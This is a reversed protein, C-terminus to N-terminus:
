SNLVKASELKTQVDFYSSDDELVFSALVYYMLILLLVTLKAIVDMKSCLDPTRSFLVLGHISVCLNELLFNIAWKFTVSFSHKWSTHSWGWFATKYWYTILGFLHLRFFFVVGLTLSLDEAPLATNLTMHIYNLIFKKLVQTLMGM